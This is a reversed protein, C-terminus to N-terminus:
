NTKEIYFKPNDYTNKQYNVIYNGFTKQEIEEKEKTNGNIKNIYKELMYDLIEDSNLSGFEIELCKRLKEKKYEDIYNEKKFESYDRWMKALEIKMYCNESFEQIQSEAKKNFTKGIYYTLIFDSMGRSVFIRNEGYEIQLQNIIESPIYKVETYSDKNVLSKINQIIKRKNDCELEFGDLKAYRGKDYFLIKNNKIEYYIDQQLNNNQNAKINTQNQMKSIEYKRNSELGRRAKTARDILTIAEARTVSKEGRYTKDEYGNVIGLKSLKLIENKYESELDNFVNKERKIDTIDIYRALIRAAENRNIKKDYNDYENEIILMNKKATSIYYDPWLDNGETVLEFNASKIIMKLFEALTVEANPRFTGDPYGSIIDNEISQIITARAWNEDIDIIDAAKLKVTGFILILLAISITKKM